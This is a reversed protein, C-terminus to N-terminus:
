TDEIGEKKYHKVAARSHRLNWEDLGVKLGDATDYQICGIFTGIYILVLVPWIFPSTVFMVAIFMTTLSSTFCLFMWFTTKMAVGLFAQPVGGFSIAFWAGGLVMVPALLSSVVTNIGETPTRRLGLFVFGVIIFNIWLVKRHKLINGQVFDKEHSKLEATLFDRLILNLFWLIPDIKKM